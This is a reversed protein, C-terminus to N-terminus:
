SINIYKTRWRFPSFVKGGGEFFKSFYEVYQLRAPHVFSGLINIFFNFLHGGVLMIVLLITGIFPLGSVMSALLNIVLALVSTVLGLAFLRSYSLIDGMLGILAYLSLVGSALKMFPNTQHRGQTLVLAILLTWFAINFLTVLSTLHFFNTLGLGILASIFFLWLGANLLSERVGTRRWENIYKLWLGTYIHIIGIIFSLVLLPLPDNLPDSLRLSLVIEKLHANPILNLDANFYSGTLLGVLMTPISCYMMLTLLKKGFATLHQKYKIFLSGSIILLLLGYGFDSLCLGFFLAFFLAMYPTPDLENANPTSFLVTVSEFPTFIGNKMKVPAESQIAQPEVLFVDNQFRAITSKLETLRSQEIWGEILSVKATKLVQQEISAITDENQLADALVSLQLRNNEYSENIQQKITTISETINLISEQVVEYQESYSVEPAKLPLVIEKWEHNHAKERIKHLDDGLAYWVTYVLKSDKSIVEEVACIDNFSHANQWETYMTIPFHGTLCEVQDLNIRQGLIRDFHRWQNLVTSEQHKAVLNSQGNDLNGLLTEIQNLKPLFFQQEAYLKSIDSLEVLPRVSIFNEIFNKVEPFLARCRALVTEARSLIQNSVQTSNTFIEPDIDIIEILEDKQLIRLIEPVREAHSFIQVKEMKAIGM